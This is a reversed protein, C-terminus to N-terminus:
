APVSRPPHFISRNHEPLSLFHDERTLFIGATGAPVFQSVLCDWPDGRAPAPPIYVLPPSVPAPACAPGRCPKSDNGPLESSRVPKRSASKGHRHDAGSKQRAASSTPAADDHSKEQNGVMVYDGCSALLEGPALLFGVAGALMWRLCFTGSGHQLLIQKVGQRALALLVNVSFCFVHKVM